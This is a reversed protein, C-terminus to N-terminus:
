IHLNYPFVKQSKFSSNQGHYTNLGRYTPMKIGFITENETLHHRPSVLASSVPYYRLGADNIILLWYVFM